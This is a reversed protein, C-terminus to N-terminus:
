GAGASAPTPGALRCATTRGSALRLAATPLVAARGSVSQLRPEVADLHFRQRLPSKFRKDVGPTDNLLYRDLSSLASLVIGADTREADLAARGADLTLRMFFYLSDTLEVGRDAPLRQAAVLATIREATGTARIRWALALARVGHVLAFSGAKKLNLASGRPGSGPHFRQTWWGGSGGAGVEAGDAAGDCANM